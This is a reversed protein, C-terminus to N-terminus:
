RRGPVLCGALSTCSRYGASPSASARVSWESRDRGADIRALGLLARLRAGLLGFGALAGVGDLEMDRLM